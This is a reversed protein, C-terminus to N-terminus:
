NFAGTAHQLTNNMLLLIDRVETTIRSMKAKLYITGSM